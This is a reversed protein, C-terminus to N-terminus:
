SAVYCLVPDTNPLIYALRSHYAPYTAEDEWDLIDHCVYVYLISVCPLVQSSQSTREM